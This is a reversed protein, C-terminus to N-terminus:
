CKIVKKSSDVQTYAATWDLSPRTPMVCVRLQWPLSTMSWEPKQLELHASVSSYLPWCLHGGQTGCDWTSVACTHLINLHGRERKVKLETMCVHTINTEANWITDFHCHPNCIWRGLHLYYHCVEVWEQMGWREVLVKHHTCQLETKMCTSFAKPLHKCYDLHRGGYVFQFLSWGARQYLHLKAGMHNGGIDAQATHSYCLIWTITQERGAPHKVWICGEGLGNSGTNLIHSIQTTHEMHICAATSSSGVLTPFCSIQRQLQWRIEWRLQYHTNDWAWTSQTKLSFRRLLSECCSYEM